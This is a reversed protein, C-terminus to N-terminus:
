NVEYTSLWNENNKMSTYLVEYAHLLSRVSVEHERGQKYKDFLITLYSIVGFADGLVWRNAFVQLMSKSNSSLIDTEPDLQQTETNQETLATIDILFASHLLTKYLSKFNAKCGILKSEIKDM